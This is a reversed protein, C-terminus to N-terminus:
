AVELARLKASRSALNQSLEESGPFGPFPRLLRVLGAQQLRQFGQKVLRDELSHYTIFVVRSGPRLNAPIQQLWAEIGELEHNIFIRLAQFVKAAPHVLGPRPRWRTVEEVLLRLQVTSQLPAFLRKEIIKKALREAAAFEGYRSFIDALKKEAFTNLVDAATLLQRQNKRMDLPGDLSHSFGRQGKKLQVTSIGPDVLIGSVALRRCNFDEFLDGFSGLHFRVRRGFVKLNARALAISEEDQDIAIMRAGAFATLIHTSHGGAGVTCDVFLKKASGQFIELVEKSM